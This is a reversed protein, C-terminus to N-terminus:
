EEDGDEGERGEDSGNVALGADVTFRGSVMPVAFGAIGDEIVVPGHIRLFGGGLELLVLFEAFAGLAFVGDDSLGDPLRGVAGEFDDALGAGEGRAFREDAM